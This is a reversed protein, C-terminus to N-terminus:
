SEVDNRDKPDAEPNFNSTDVYISRGIRVRKLGFKEDDLWNDVTEPVVSLRKAFKTRRELNTTETM